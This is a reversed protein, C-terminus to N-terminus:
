LNHTVRMLSETATWTWHYFSFAHKLNQIYNSSNNNDDAAKNDGPQDAGKEDAGGLRGEVRVPQRDEPTGRCRFLGRFVCVKKMGGEYKRTIM